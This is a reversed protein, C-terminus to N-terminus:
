PSLTHSCMRVEGSRMDWVYLHGKSDGCAILNRLPAHAAATVVAEPDPLTLTMPTTNEDTEGIKVTIKVSNEDYAFATSRIKESTSVSFPDQPDDSIKFFTPPQM